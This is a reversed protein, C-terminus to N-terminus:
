LGLIPRLAAEFADAQRTFGLDTPHSGDVTDDGDPGLLRAGELYYLGAVGDAQLRAFAARLAAQSGANRERRRQLLFGDPYNRDEVLLIPTDPRAARLRRVFPEVRETVQEADINPLCDLVYVAPDLESLLEALEPEMRGNGSFGLNVVPWELRRGVQAVHTMGPRSACAGHTISTGYFLIPRQRAASRPECRSLTADPPLGIEVNKVGNYLPLYLLWERSKAPINEVLAAANDVKTPRGIAVWRWAGDDDRVYLDLGSVGTAPMHVMALDPSTLTWRAVIKTADTVFRVCMGSSDRSLRWVPERVLKEARAPLRDFPAATDTWARGELGLERIDYWLLDGAESPRATARDITDGGRSTEAAFAILVIALLAAGRATASERVHPHRSNM